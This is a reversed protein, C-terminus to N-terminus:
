SQRSAKRRSQIGADRLAMLNRMVAAFKDFRQQPTLKLNERLLSRDVDRKYVAIVPDVIAHKDTSLEPDILNSSM